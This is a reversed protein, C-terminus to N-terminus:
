AGGRGALEARTAETEEFAPKLRELQAELTKLPGYPKGHGRGNCADALARASAYLVNFDKVLWHPEASRARQAVKRLEKAGDLLAPAAERLLALAQEFQAQLQDREASVREDGLAASTEWRALGYREAHEWYPQDGDHGLRWGGARLLDPTNV